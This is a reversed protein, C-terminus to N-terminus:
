LTPLTAPICPPAEVTYGFLSDIVARTRTNTLVYDDIENRVLSPQELMLERLRDINPTIGGAKIAGQPDPYLDLPNLPDLIEQFIFRPQIEKTVPDLLGAGGWDGSQEVEFKFRGDLDGVVHGTSTSVLDEVPKIYGEYLSIRERSVADEAILDYFGISNGRPTTDTFERKAGNGNVSKLRDLIRASIESAYVEVAVSRVYFSDPAYVVASSLLELGEYQSPPTAQKYAINYSPYSVRGGYLSQPSLSSIATHYLYYSVYIEVQSTLLSILGSELDIKFDKNLSLQQGRGLAHDFRILTFDSDPM